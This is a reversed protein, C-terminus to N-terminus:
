DAIVDGGEASAGDSTDPYSSVYEGVRVGSEIAAEGSGLDLVKVERRGDLKSGDKDTVEVYARGGEQIIASEPVLLVEKRAGVVISAEASMGYRLRPDPSDFRVDVEYKVVGTSVAADGGTAAVALSESAGVNASTTARSAVRVVEAQATVGPLADFNVTATQGERINVVDKESVSMRLVMSSLNAIEVASMEAAVSKAASAGSSPVLATGRKINVAVVTGDIPSVVTAGKMQKDIKELAKKTSAIEAQATQRAARVAAIGQVATKYEASASQYVFMTSAITEMDDSSDARLLASKAKSFSRKTSLAASKARHEASNSEALSSKAASLATAASSRTDSIGVNKVTFLKDGKAVEQGESVMLKKVTGGLESNAVVSDIPRLKGKGEITHSFNGRRVAIAESLSDDADNHKKANAYASAGAIGGVVLIGCVVGIIIRKKKNKKNKSRARIEEASPIPIIGEGLFDETGDPSIM